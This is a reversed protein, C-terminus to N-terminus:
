QRQGIGLAQLHPARALAFAEAVQAAARPHRPRSTRKLPCARAIIESHGFLGRQVVDCFNEVRVAFFDAVEGGDYLFAEGGRLVVDGVDLTFEFAVDRAHLFLHIGDFRFYFSRADLRAEAVEFRFNEASRASLHSSVHGAFILSGDRAVPHSLRV